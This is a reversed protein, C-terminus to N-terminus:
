GWNMLMLALAASAIFTVATAIAVFLSFRAANDAPM